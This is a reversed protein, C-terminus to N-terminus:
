PGCVRLDTAKIHLEFDYGFSDLFFRLSSSRVVHALLFLAFFFIIFFIDFDFDCDLRSFVGRWAMDMVSQRDLRQKPTSKGGKCVGYARM